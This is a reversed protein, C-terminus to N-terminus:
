AWTGHQKGYCDILEFLSNVVPRSAGFLVDFNRIDIGFLVEVLNQRLNLIEQNTMEMKNVGLTDNIKKILAETEFKDFGTRTSYEEELESLTFKLIKILSDAEADNLLMQSSDKNSSKIEM